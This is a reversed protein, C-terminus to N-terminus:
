RVSGAEQSQGRGRRQEIASIRRRAVTLSPDLEIARELAALAEGDTEPEGKQYLAEGVGCWGHKEGPYQVTVERYLTASREWDSRVLALAAEALLRERPSSYLRNELLHALTEGEVYQMAFYRLGNEEGFDYISVINQHELSSIARAESNFRDSFEKNRSLEPPLVKLAVIRGLSEQSARYVDGMGGKGLRDLIRYGAVVSGKQLHM